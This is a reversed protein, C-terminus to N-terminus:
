AAAGFVPRAVSGGVARAAEYAAVLGPNRGIRRETEADDDACIVIRASPRLAHLARAVPALNGANFAVAVPYGTAKHVSAATAFGEAICLQAGDYVPGGILHWLGSVRARPQFRKEGCPAITQVNWLCGAGDRMPVLLLHGSQRIGYPMVRKTRLYEHSDIVPVSESWLTQATSAARLWQARQADERKERANATPAQPKTGLGESQRVPFLDAMSLGVSEMVADASCGGHCHLLLSGDDGEAVALSDGRSGHAPCCARWGNGARKVGDLRSLLLDVNAPTSNAASFTNKRSEGRNGGHPKANRASASM